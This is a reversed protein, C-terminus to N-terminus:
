DILFYMYVNDFYLFIYTNLLVMMCIFQIVYAAHTHKRAM